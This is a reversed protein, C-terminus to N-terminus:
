SGGGLHRGQIKTKPGKPGLRAKGCLHWLFPLFQFFKLLHWRSQPPVGLQDNKLFLIKDLSYLGHLYTYTYIYIYVTFVRKKNYYIYMYGYIRPVHKRKRYIYIYYAYINYIYVNRSAIKWYCLNAQGKLLGPNEHPGESDDNSYYHVPHRDELFFVMMISYTYYVHPIYTLHLWIFMHYTIRTHWVVGGVMIKKSVYTSSVMELTKLALLWIFWWPKQRWLVIARLAMRLQLGWSRRRWCQVGQLWSLFWQFGSQNILSFINREHSILYDRDFQITEWSQRHGSTRRKVPRGRKNNSWPWNLSWRFM